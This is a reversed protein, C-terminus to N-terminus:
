GLHSKNRFTKNTRAFSNAKETTFPLRSSNYLNNTYLKTFWYIQKLLISFDTEGFKHKIIIPNAIADDTKSQYNTVIIGYKHTPDIWIDGSEPQICTKDQIRGIVPYGSKIVELIDISEIDLALLAANVIKDIDLKHLRGDRHVILKKISRNQKELFRKFNAFVNLIALGDLAENLLTKIEESFLYEGRNDCFVIALLSFDKNSQHSHGLDIGCFFTDTSEHTNHILGLLGGLKELCKVVFNSLRYKEFLGLYLEFFIHNEFLSKIEGDALKNKTFIVILDNTHTHKSLQRALEHENYITITPLINCNIGAQNFKFVLNKFENIISLEYINQHSQQIIVPQITKNSVPRFIGNYYVAQPKNTVKNGGTLFNNEYGINNLAIKYYPKTHFQYNGFLGLESVERLSPLIKSFKKKTLDTVENFITPSFNHLFQYDFTTITNPIKNLISMADAEWNNALLDIKFRKFRDLSVLSLTAYTTKVALNTKLIKLNEITTQNSGVIKSTPLYHIFFHGDSFVEINFEICQCITFHNLRMKEIVFCNQNLFQKWKTSLQRRLQYALLASIRQTNSFPPILLITKKLQYQITDPDELKEFSIFYKLSFLYLRDKLQFSLWKKFKEYHDKNNRIRSKISYFYLKINNIEGFRSTIFGDM